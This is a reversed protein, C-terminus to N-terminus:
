RRLCLPARIRRRRSPLGPFPLAVGVALSAAHTCGPFPLPQGDHPFPSPLPGVVAAQSAPFPSPRAWPWHPPMRAALSPSPSATMLSLPACRVSPPPLSHRRSPPAAGPLTAPWPAQCGAPSPTAAPQSSLPRGRSPLILRGPPPPQSPTSSSSYCSLLELAACPRLGPGRRAPAARAPAMGPRRQWRPSCGGVRAVPPHPPAGRWLGRWRPTGSLPGREWATTAPSGHWQVLAARAWAAPAPAPRARAATRPRWPQRPSFNSTAM